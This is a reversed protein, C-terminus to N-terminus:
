SDENSLAEIIPCNPVTGGECRSSIEKLTRELKGLDAIKKRVEALHGETLAKVEGCTYIRAGGPAGGEPRRQLDRNAGPSDPGGGEVLGLLARIEELSFGLERSRRIFFLRKRHEQRYLRHGGESRPPEPMLGSREYYRITEINVGTQRSLSGITLEEQKGGM